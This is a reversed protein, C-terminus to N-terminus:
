SSALITIILLRWNDWNIQYLWVPLVHGHCLGCLAVNVMGYGVCALICGIGAIDVQHVFLLLLLHVGPAVMSDTLIRSEYPM